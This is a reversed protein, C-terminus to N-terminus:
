YRTEYKALMKAKNKVAHAILDDLVKAHKPAMMKMVFTPAGKPNLSMVHACQMEVFVGDKVVPKFHMYNLRAEGIKDKGIKAMNQQVLKDNGASSTIMTFEGTEDNHAFYQGVIISINPM